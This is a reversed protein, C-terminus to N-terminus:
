SVSFGCRNSNMGIQPMATYKTYAIRRTSQASQPMTTSATGHPLPLRFAVVVYAQNRAFQAFRNLQDSTASTNWVDHPRTYRETSIATVHPKSCRSRSTVQIATESETPGAGLGVDAVRVVLPEPEGEEEVIPRVLPLAV